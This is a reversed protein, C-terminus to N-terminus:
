SPTTQLLEKEATPLRGIRAALTAQVTPPIKLEVLSRTLKVQGNRVLSGNDLLGQVIEEMFFPNGETREIMLRKLPALEPQDGLLSSLM